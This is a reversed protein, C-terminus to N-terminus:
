ETEDEEDGAPHYYNKTLYYLAKKLSYMNDRFYGLGYNCATCLLGRVKGTDHDHDVCLVGHLNDIDELGCIACRNNQAQLMDHYDDFSM